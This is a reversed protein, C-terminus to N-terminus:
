FRGRVGVRFQREFYRDFEPASEDYLYFDLNEKTLNSIQGFVSIGDRIKYAGSIDVFQTPAQYRSNGALSVNVGALRKSRYNYAARLELKDDDYWLVLNGQKKSNNIFPLKDGNLDTADQESLALTFNADVGMNSLIGPFMDLPQKLGFELGKLTAGEGQVPSSIDVVRGRVVGDQDALDSRTEVGSQIFSEVDIAFFALSLIGGPRNYWELGVDFNKSRWPDLNPNGGQSGGLVAFVQNGGPGVEDSLGYNLRLAGGWNALDLVSMTKAFSGRMVVDDTLDVAFQATPLVDTFSRDTFTDGADVQAVGYPRSAGVENQRVSLTTDIIQLGFNARVNKGSVQGEFDSSLYGSIQELGVGYSNGPNPEELNGPDVSEMFAAVNRWANPDLTLVDPLGGLQPVSIISNSFDALNLPLGATYAFGNADLANCASQNLQVDNARWKILCGDADSAIGPYRRVVRDFVLNETERDSFRVGAGFTWNTNADYEADLRLAHSDTEARSNNESSITKLGYNDASGLLSTVESPLTFQAAGSTYDVTAPLTLAAYGNPNFVNDGGPYHYVGSAGISDNYATNQWRRGDTLNFQVYINDQERTGESYVARASGRLKGGNDYDFKASLNTTKTEVVSGQSSVDFNPLDYNFITPLNFDYGGSEGPTEVWAGPTYHARQWALKNIGARVGRNFEDQEAYFVDGTFSLADSLDAQISSTIGLREREVLNYDSRDWQATRFSDTIDGDGNVDYGLVNGGVDTVPTGRTIGPSGPYYGNAQDAQFSNGGSAGEDRRAGGGAMGLEANYLLPDSYAASVNFGFGDGKYNFLGNISPRLKQTESGYVGELAGAWTVGDKLDNPRLTKLNITGSVGSNYLEPNLTKYVDAGSFLQSPIDSFNPQVSTISSPTIFAEGNILTGVQGLGRVNVSAGEGASRQIQIGPIRQLSDAITSDPLKGIDTAVISDIIQTSDRKLDVSAKQSAKVGVVVIEDIEEGATQAIANSNLALVSVSGLAILKVCSIKM